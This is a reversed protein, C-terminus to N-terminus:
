ASLNRHSSHHETSWRVTPHEARELRHNLPLSSSTAPNSWGKIERAIFSSSRSYLQSLLLAKEKGKSHNARWQLARWFVKHLLTSSHLDDQYKRCALGFMCIENCFMNTGNRLLLFFYYDTNWCKQYRCFMGRSESRLAAADWLNM